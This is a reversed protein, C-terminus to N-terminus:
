RTRQALRSRGGRKRVVVRPGRNAARQLSGIGKRAPPLITRYGEEMETHDTGTGAGDNRRVERVAESDDGQRVDDGGGGNGSGGDHGDDEEERVLEAFAAETNFGESQEVVIDYNRARHEIEKYFEAWYWSVSGDLTLGATKGDPLNFVRITGCCHKLAAKYVQSAWDVNSAHQHKQRQVTIRRVQERLARVHPKPLKRATDREAERKRALAADRQMLGLAHNVAIHYPYRKEGGHVFTHIIFLKEDDTGHWRKKNHQRLEHGWVHKFCVHLERSKDLDLPKTYKPKKRRYGVSVRFRGKDDMNLTCAQHKWEGTVFRHFIREQRRAPKTTFVKGTEKDVVAGRHIFRLPPSDVHPRLEIIQDPKPGEGEEIFSVYTSRDETHLFPIGVRSCRLPEVTASVVLKYRQINNYDPMKASRRATHEESWQDWMHAGLPEAQGMKVMLENFRFYEERAYYNKRPKETPRWGAFAAVQVKQKHTSDVNWGHKVKKQKKSGNTAPVTKYYQKVDATARDIVVLYSELHATMVRNM